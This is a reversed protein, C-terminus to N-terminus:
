EFTIQNKSIVAKRNFDIVLNQPHHGFPYGRYVPIDLSAAFDALVANIVSRKGCRTFHCFVVGSADDFFKSDRLQELQEKVKAPNGGINEIFIIRDKSSPIEGSQHAKLLRSLLGALPMGSCDGSKLPQLKIPKINEGNLIRKMQPLIQPNLGPLTRLSPGALLHGMNRRNLACHLSTIDSFGMFLLEKRPKLRSWNLYEVLKYTGSGGRTCLILDNEPDNWAAYFDEARQAVPYAFKGGAGAPALAHPYIKVKLNAAKLMAVAEMAAKTDPLSAPSIVAITKVEAPFIGCFSNEPLIKKLAESDAAVASSGATVLACIFISFIKKLM